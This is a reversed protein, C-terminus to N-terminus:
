LTVTNDSNCLCVECWRAALMPHMYQREDKPVGTTNDYCGSLQMWVADCHSSFVIVKQSNAGVRMHFKRSSCESVSTVTRLSVVTVVITM